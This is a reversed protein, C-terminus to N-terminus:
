QMQRAVLEAIARRNTNETSKGEFDHLLEWHQFANRLEGQQLLFAPNMPTVNPSDDMMAIVAIMVGGARVGAKIAPFLDRQLYCCNVILDYGDPEIIFEGTELNAVRADVREGLERASELLIEIAVKSSDVATVQWGREALYIANRGTGCAVDLARGPPLQAAFQVVLPHPQSNALEGERQRKAWKVDWQNM